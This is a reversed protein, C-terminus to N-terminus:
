ERMGLDARWDQAHVWRRMILHALLAFAMSSLVAHALMPRSLVWPLRYLETDFRAYAWVTVLYGLAIGGVVGTIGIVAHEYLLIDCIESRTFGQIRLLALERRRESLIMLAGNLNLGCSLVGAVIFFIFSAIDMTQQLSNRFGAIKDRRRQSTLVRPLRGMEREFRTGDDDCQVRVVSFAREEGLLRRMWDLDAYAELGLNAPYLGAVLLSFAATGDRLRRGRLRDGPRVGLVQAQKESVLIGEPPITIPDGEITRPRFLQAGQEIGVLYIRRSVPGRSVEMLEGYAGEARVVGALRELSFEACEPIEDSLM